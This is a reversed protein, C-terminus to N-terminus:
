TVQSVAKKLDGFTEAIYKSGGALFGTTILIGLMTIEDRGFVISMADFPHSKCVLFCVIATIPVKFGKGGLYKQYIKWNFFFALSREVLMSVIIMLAFATGVRELVVALGADM